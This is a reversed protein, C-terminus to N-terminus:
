AVGEFATRSEAPQISTASIGGNVSTATITVTKRGFLALIFDRIEVPLNSVVYNFVAMGSAMTLGAFVAAIITSPSLEFAVQGVVVGFLIVVLQWVVGTLAVIGLKKWNAVSQDKMFQFQELLVSLALAAAVPDSVAFYLKILQEM